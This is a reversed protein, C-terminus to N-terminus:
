RARISLRNSRDSQGSSYDYIEVVASDSVYSASDPIVWNYSGDPGVAGVPSDVVDRFTLGNDLSLAVVVGFFQRSPQYYHWQVHVTDGLAFGECGLPAQIAINEYPLTDPKVTKPTCTDDVTISLNVSDSGSANVAKVMYTHQSSATAPTGTIAGTVSNMALGAPLAPVIAFSDVAGGGNTCTNTTIATGVTYTAPNTTYGLPGPKDLVPDPSSPSQCSMMTSLFAVATGAMIVMKMATNV